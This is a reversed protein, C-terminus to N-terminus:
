ESTQNKVLNMDPHFAISFWENSLALTLHVLFAFCFSGLILTIYALIFGLFISGITERYGKPLHVLSYIFINIMIAPWFGFSELCAFLLFGRFMSEYGALYVTWSLASLLILGPDWQRVRIQPYHDRHIGKRAAFYTLTVLLLAIPAWWALTKALNESHWGYHSIPMRFVLVIFLLPVLGYLVSGALRQLLIRRVSAAEPSFKRHLRKGFVDSYLILYFVLCAAMTVLIAAIGNLLKLDPEPFGPM